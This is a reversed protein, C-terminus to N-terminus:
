TEYIAEEELCIHLEWVCQRKLIIQRSSKIKNSDGIFLLRPLEALTTDVRYIRSKLSGRRNQHTSHEEPTNRLTSHYGKVSTEPCRIEGMKLLRRPSRSVQLYTIGFRRYLTVVRRQAIGCFLVIRVRCITRNKHRPLIGSLPLFATKAFNLDAHLGVLKRDLSCRLSEELRYFPRPTLSVVWRCRTGPILICTWLQVKGHANM